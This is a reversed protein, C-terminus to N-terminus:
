CPQIEDEEEEWLDKTGPVQGLVPPADHTGKHLHFHAAGLVVVALVLCVNYTLIWIPSTGMWGRHWPSVLVVGAIDKTPKKTM